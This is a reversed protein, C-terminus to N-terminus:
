LGGLQGFVRKEAEMEDMAQYLYPPLPTLSPPLPYPLPTYSTRRAQRIRGEEWRERTLVLAEGAGGELSQEQFGLLALLLSVQCANLM